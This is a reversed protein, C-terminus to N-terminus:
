ERLVWWGLPAILGTEEALPLFDAAPVVGREPHQWHLLTTFGALRGTALSAVPQYHLRFEEREIARRLDSELQMASRAEAHLGEDFVVHRGRGLGKARYLAIDADRLLEEPQEYAPGELAIGISTTVFLEHGELRFPMRLRQHIREAVVTAARAGTIGALLIAFEDGGFRALTDGPRLCTELRRALAVLLRDGLPHGLSDNVRKLHDLDLFLIAFRSGPERGARYVAQQLRDLFLARNPLGTWPDRFAQHTLEAERAEAARGAAVLALARPLAPLLLALLALAAVIVGAQAIPLLWGRHPALLPAVPLAQDAGYAILFAAITPVLRRRSVAGVLAVVRILAVALAAFTLGILADAAVPLAAAWQPPLDSPVPLALGGFVAPHHLPTVYLGAESPWSRARVARCGQM